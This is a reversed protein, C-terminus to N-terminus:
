EKEEPAEVTNQSEWLQECYANINQRQAELINKQYAKQFSYLNWGFACAAGVAALLACGLVNTLWNM